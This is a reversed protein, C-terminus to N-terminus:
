WRYMISANPIPMVSDFGEEDFFVGIPIELTFGFNRAFCFEVGAGAGFSYMLFDESESARHSKRSDPEDIKQNFSWLVSTSASVFARGWAQRNVTIFMGLGGSVFGRIEKDEKFIVPLATVQIGFPNGAFEHRYTLGFGSTGGASIGIGGHSHNYEYAHASSICAFFTVTFIFLAIKKV